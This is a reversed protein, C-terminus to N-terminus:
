EQMLAILIFKDAFEDVTAGSSITRGGASVLYRVAEGTEPSTSRYVVEQRPVSAEAVVLADADACVYVSIEM